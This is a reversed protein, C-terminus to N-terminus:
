PASLGLVPYLVGFAEPLGGNLADAVHGAGPVVYYTTTFGASQALQANRQAGPVFESDDEGVTFVAVHGNFKGQNQQLWASPKAADYAAQEGGYFDQVTASQSEVGPFEDGSIAILNGWTEPYRAAWTFACAGGNSYGAITWYKPDDIINLNSKAYAVIDTNFYTSVGGFKESDACVPDQSPDGLQDAVIVIPALGKNTAAMADLATQIFSPDPNGPMGMMMVVLPLPPANPVQAAPPLYLSADRPKFGASSPIASAGTLLGVKGQSPMDDPPTWSAYVPGTPAPGQTPKGPDIPDITSIGLMAGVTRDIGFTANVGLVGTLLALVILVVAVVKRWARSDWLSVVALGIAAFTGGVWWVVPPPLGPDFANTADAILVACVGTLAGIVIGLLARLVWRGTPRRTLLVLIGAVTLGWVIYPLPPDIVDLAFLWDLM